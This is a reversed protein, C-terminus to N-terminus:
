QAMPGVEVEVEVEREANRPGMGTGNIKYLNFVYTSSNYGTTTGVAYGSRSVTGTLTPAAAATDRGGTRYTFGDGIPTVDIAASSSVDSMGDLSQQVAAEAAYFAGESWQDNVAVAAEDESVSLLTAGLMLLLVMVLLAVIIVAGEESRPREADNLHMVKRTPM